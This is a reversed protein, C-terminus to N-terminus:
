HFLRRRRDRWRARAENVSRRDVSVGACARSVRASMGFGEVRMLRRGLRELSAPFDADRKHALRRLEKLLKVRAVDFSGWIFCGAAGEPRAELWAQLMAEAAAESAAYFEVSWRDSDDPWHALFWESPM